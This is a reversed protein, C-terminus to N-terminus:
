SVIYAEFWENIYQAWGEPREEQARKLCEEKTAEIYIPEAQLLDTMRQRDTALPYGGIIYASSWQGKRIKVQEILCDRLGFVNAKLKAPKKYKGGTSVADWIRDVDIILDDPRAVDNVWTTKGSCPAGYVLYVKRRYGEFRQHIINHCRHHVLMINEPNLSINADSVNEETLEVMHHAIADYQKVIPKGCHECILDGNENIRELALIERLREWADSRYFRFLKSSM